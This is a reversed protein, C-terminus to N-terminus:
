AEKNLVKTAEAGTQGGLVSKIAQEAREQADKVAQGAMLPMTFIISNEFDGRPVPGQGVRAQPKPLLPLLPLSPLTNPAIPNILPMTPVGVPLLPLLIIRTNM